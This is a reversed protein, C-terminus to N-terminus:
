SGFVGAARLGEIEAASYGTEKLVDDTHLGVQVGAFKLEPKTASFKFPTGVQKQTGGSLKPVEAIMGRAVNQPHAAAESVTLVPEVCADLEAFIAAWEAFTKGRMIERIEKKLIQQEEGFVHGRPEFDPRGIAECFQRWFQPELSGVSIHRGDKTEYYDYYLGGNLSMEEREPNEGGVLWTGAHHTIWCMAWDTMSVDVFQGEGTKERHIYAALVGAVAGLSGGGVDAIQVGQVVPGEAKRGCFSSVGAISLYNNDHGARDKYPGTQGYGTIACYIVRPNVARLAEYGVGLRDMVGPRFQEVVVDYTRVLRKVVDAAGPKKLDLALSRKGRNIAMHAASQDGDFPPVFRMTDVRNPAEVRLVDCGLDALLMTGFPGPLLTTFDLVKIGALPGAM